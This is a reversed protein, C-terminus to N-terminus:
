DLGRMGRAAREFAYDGVSVWGRFPRDLDAIALLSLAVMLSLSFVQFRHVPYNRSGFIIISLITLAGGILLVCWFIGPLRSASELFRIRRLQTLTTLQGLAHDQAAAESPTTTRVSALTHWMLQNIRHSGADPMVGHALQPWDEHIVTDAYARALSEMQARPEPPLGEALRYMNTLASAELDVNLQAAMFNTWVAYLMFGTIVAQMTALVGLQWGLLYDDATYRKHPPWLRNILAMVLLSGAVVAILILLDDLLSLM